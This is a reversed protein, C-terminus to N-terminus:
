PRDLIDLLWRKAQPAYILEMHNLPLVDKALLTAGARTMDSTHTASKVFVVGDSPGTNENYIGKLTPRDGALVALEIGGDLPHKRLRDIFRGGQAIAQDIGASESVFGRGGHYTTYWDQETTPLPYEQDWRYLIQAQGPFYNGADTMLSLPRTDVWLGMVLMRTWSMPANRLRDDQEPFLGYNVIPHRFAFDIGLHPGGLMVLRRVDQGYPAMWSHRVGSAYARAAVTGKSHAVLDVESAGTVARIRSVASAVQEAWLLNDGHRHAFTLAFVRKGKGSLYPALGEQDHPAHWSTNADVMVGHVLLIPTGSGSKWGRAYHLLSDRSPPTATGFAEVLEPDRQRGNPRAQEVPFDKYTSTLREIRDWNRGKITASVVFRSSARTAASIAAREPQSSIAGLGDPRGCGAMALVSAFLAIWLPTPRAM